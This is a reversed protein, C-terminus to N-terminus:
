LDNVTVVANKQQKAKYLAQDAKTLLETVDRKRQLAIIGTSITLDYSSFAGLVRLLCLAKPLM